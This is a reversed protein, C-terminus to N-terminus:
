CYSAVSARHSTIGNDPINRRTVTTPVSTESSRIAEMMLAFLILSSRVINATILLRLMSRLLAKTQSTVPHPEELFRHKPPFQRRWWRTFLILSSPVVNVTVLFRLMSRLLATTQSTVDHSEELFLCKPPVYSRWWWLSLFRHALFLTLLM